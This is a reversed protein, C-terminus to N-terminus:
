YICMIILHFSSYSYVLMHFFVILLDKITTTKKDFDTIWKSLPQYYFNFKSEQEELNIVLKKLQYLAAPRGESYRKNALEIILNNKLLRDLERRVLSYKIQLISVIESVTHPAQLLNKISEQRESLVLEKM